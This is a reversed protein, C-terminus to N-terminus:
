AAQPSFPIKGTNNLAQPLIKLHHFVDRSLWAAETLCANRRSDKNLYRGQDGATRPKRGFTSFAGSNPDFIWISANFPSNSM